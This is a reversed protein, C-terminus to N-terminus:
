GLLALVAAPHTKTDVKPFAHEIRGDPGIVYSIRRPYEAKADDCAGYDLGIERTTDCLLQYPFHFKEAFAANEEVTDFSVGLISTGKEDFQPKLDRYGCGEITCGPTDAKPYFWLVVRRGKYDSLRVEHGLHDSVTFSPAEAGVPLM